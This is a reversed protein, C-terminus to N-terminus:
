EGMARVIRAHEAHYADAEANAKADAAEMAVWDPHRKLDAIAAHALALREATLGLVGGVDASLGNRPTKYVTMLGTGRMSGDIIADVSIRLGRRERVPEALAGDHDTMAEILSVRVALKNGKVGAWEVTRTALTTTTRM